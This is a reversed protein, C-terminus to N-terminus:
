MLTELVFIKEECKKKGETRLSLNMFLATAYELSYESMIGYENKMIQIIWKMLDHNIM